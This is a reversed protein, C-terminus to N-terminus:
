KKLIPIMERKEIETVTEGVSILYEVIEFQNNRLAGMILSHERGGRKYRRNIVHSEQEFYCKLKHVDGNCAASWLEDITM